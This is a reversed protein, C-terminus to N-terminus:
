AADGRGVSSAGCGRSARRTPPAPGAPGAPADGHKTRCQNFIREVTSLSPSNLLLLLPNWSREFFWATRLGLKRSAVAPDGPRRGRAPPNEPRPQRLRRARDGTDAVDAPVARLPESQAQAPPFFRSSIRALGRVASAELSSRLHRPGSTDGNRKEKRMKGSSFDGNRKEQRWREPLPATLAVLHRAAPRPQPKRVSGPVCLCGGTSTAQLKGERGGPTAVRETGTVRGGRGPGPIQPRAAVRPGPVSDPGCLACRTM